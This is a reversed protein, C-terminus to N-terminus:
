RIPPPDQPGSRMWPGAALSALDAHLRPGGGHAPHRVVPTGHPLARRATQGVAAVRRPQMLELFRLLWAAGLAREEVRPTRNRLPDDARAPHFPVANWLVVDTPDIGAALLAERLVTASHETFGDPRLGAASTRQAPALSREATFAIGSFRAGHASPAEGILALSAGIRPELYARLNACRIAAAGPRDLGAVEDAYPNVLTAPRARALDAVFADISDRDRV